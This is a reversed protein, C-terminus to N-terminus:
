KKLYFNVKELSFPPVEDNEFVKLIGQDMFTERAPKIVDMTTIIATITIFARVVACESKREM